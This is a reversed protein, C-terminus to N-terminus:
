NARGSVTEGAGRSSWSRPIKQLNCAMWEAPHGESVPRDSTRWPRYLAAHGQWQAGDRPARDQQTKEGVTQAPDSSSPAAEWAEGCVQWEGRRRGTLTKSPAAKLQTENVMLCEVQESRSECTGTKNSPTDAMVKMISKLACANRIHCSFRSCAKIYTGIM